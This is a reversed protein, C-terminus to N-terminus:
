LLVAGLESGSFQRGTLMTRFFVIQANQWRVANVSTLSEGVYKSQSVM